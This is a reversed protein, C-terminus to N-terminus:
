FSTKFDKQSINYRLRPLLCRKLSTNEINSFLVGRCTPVADKILEQILSIPPAANKDLYQALDKVWYSFNIKHNCINKSKKNENYAINTNMVLRFVDKDPFAECDFTMQFACEKQNVMKNKDLPIGELNYSFSIPSIRVLEFDLEPTSKKLSKTM